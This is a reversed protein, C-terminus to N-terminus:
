DCGVLCAIRGSTEMGSIWTAIVPAPLTRSALKSRYPPLYTTSSTAVTQLTKLL